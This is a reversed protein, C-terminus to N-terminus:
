HTPPSDPEDDYNDTPLEGSAPGRLRSFFSTERPAEPDTEAETPPYADPYTAASELERV